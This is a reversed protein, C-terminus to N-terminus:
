SIFLYDNLFQLTKTFHGDQKWKWRLKELQGNVCIIVWECWSCNPIKSKSVRLNKFIKETGFLFFCRWKPAKKKFSTKKQNECSLPFSPFSSSM